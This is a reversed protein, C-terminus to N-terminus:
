FKKFVLNPRSIGLLVLTEPAGHHGRSAGQHGPLKLFHIGSAGQHGKIGRMSARGFVIHFACFWGIHSVTTLKQTAVMKQITVGVLELTELVKKIQVNGRRRPATRQKPIWHCSAPCPAKTGHLNEDHM